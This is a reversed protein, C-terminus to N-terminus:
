RAEAFKVALYLVKLSPRLPEELLFVAFSIEDFSLSAGIALDQATFWSTNSYPAQVLDYFWQLLVKIEREGWKRTNRIVEGVQRQFMFGIVSVVQITSEQQELYDHAGAVSGGSVKAAKEALLKAYGLRILIDKVENEELPPMPIRVCRSLVTLPLKDSSSLLIFKVRDTPEELVRLLAQCAQDTIHDTDLVIIKFPSGYPRTSVFHKVARIQDIGVDGEILLRDCDQVVKSALYLALRKKGIGARGSLLLAPPLNHELRKRTTEHGVVDM